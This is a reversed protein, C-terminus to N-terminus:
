VGVVEVNRLRWIWIGGLTGRVEASKEATWTGGIARRLVQVGGREWHSSASFREGAAMYM